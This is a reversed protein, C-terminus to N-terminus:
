RVWFTIKASAPAAGENLVGVNAAGCPWPWPPPGPSALPGTSSSKIVWQGGNAILRMQADAGVISPIVDLSVWLAGPPVNFGAAAGPALDLTAVTFTPPEADTFPVPVISSQIDIPYSAIPQPGWRAVSVRAYTQAGLAFRGPRLDTWMVRANPGSGLELKCVVQGGTNPIPENIPVADPDTAGAYTTIMRDIIPFEAASATGLACTNVAWEVLQPKLSEFAVLLDYQVPLALNIVPVLAPLTIQGGAVKWGKTQLPDSWKFFGDERESM